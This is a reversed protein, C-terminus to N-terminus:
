KSKQHFIVNQTKSKMYRHAKSHASLKDAIEAGTIRDIADNGANDYGIVGFIVTRYEKKWVIPWEFPPEIDTLILDSDMYFEIRNFGSTKDSILATFNIHWSGEDDQYIEELLSVIPRTKDIAIEFAFPEEINGTGDVAWYEVLHIGNETLKFKAPYDPIIVEDNNDIKYHIDKIGSRAGHCPGPCLPDKGTIEVDVSRIYWNNDGNPYLPDPYHMSIPPCSDVGIDFFENNNNIDCDGEFSIHVFVTYIGPQVFDYSGLNVEVMEGSVIFIDKILDSKILTGTDPDTIWEFLEFYIDVIEDHTGVNKLLVSINAEECQICCEPLGFDCGKANLEFALDYGLSINNQLANSGGSTDMSKSWLMSCPGVSQISIWGKAGNDACGPINIIFYYADFGGFNDLYEYDPYIYSYINLIEGPKGGADEYFIVEFEIGFPDCSIWGNDYTLSLGWCRVEGVPDTLGSFDDICLYGM